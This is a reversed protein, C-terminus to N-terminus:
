GVLLAYIAAVVIPGLLIIALWGLCGIGGRPEIANGGDPAGTGGISIKKQFRIPGKGATFYSGRPGTRVRVGGVGISTSVGSKSLGIRIPGLKWGKRFTWGM